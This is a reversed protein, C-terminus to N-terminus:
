WTGGAKNLLNKFMGAPALVADCHHQLEATTKNSAFCLRLKQQNWSTIEMEEVTPKVGPMWKQQTVKSKETGSLQLMNCCTAVVVLIYWFETLNEAIEGPQDGQDFRDHRSPKACTCPQGHYKAQSALAASVYWGVGYAPCISHRHRSVGGRNCRSFIFDHLIRVIFRPVLCIITSIWCCPM